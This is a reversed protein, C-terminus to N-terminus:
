RKQVGPKSKRERGEGQWLTMRHQARDRDVKPLQQQNKHVATVCICVCLPATDYFFIARFCDGEVRVRLEYLGKCDTLKKLEDRREEGRRFRAIVEMLAARGHDVLGELEEKAVVRDSGPPRYWRWVRKPRGPSPSPGGSM